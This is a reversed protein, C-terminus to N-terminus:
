WIVHSSVFHRIAADSWRKVNLVIKFVLFRPLQSLMNFSSAARAVGTRERKLQSSIIVTFATYRTASPESIIKVLNSKRSIPARIIANKSASINHWGTVKVKSGSVKFTRSAYLTVHHFDTRFKLSISCDGVSNNPRGVDTPFFEDSM